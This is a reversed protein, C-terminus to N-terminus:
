PTTNQQGLWSRFDSSNCCELTLISKWYNFGFVTQEQQARSKQMKWFQLSTVKADKSAIYDRYIESIANSAREVFRKCLDLERYHSEIRSFLTSDISTRNQLYFKIKPVGNNILIDVFLYQEQPLDDLYLNLFIPQGGNLWRNLKKQNCISCCQMLNLPNASFEPFLSKPIYHDLQSCDNLTCNPCLMDRVNTGTTTLSIFLDSFFKRRFQYLGSLAEKAQSTTTMTQLSSLTNANFNGNYAAYCQEIDNEISKLCEKEQSSKKASVVKKHFEFADDPYHQVKRM